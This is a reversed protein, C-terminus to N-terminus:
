SDGGNSAAEVAERLQRKNMKSRGKVELRAAERYLQDRSPESPPATQKVSPVPTQTRTMLRRVLLWALATIGAALAINLLKRM